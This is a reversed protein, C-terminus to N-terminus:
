KKVKKDKEILKELVQLPLGMDIVGFDGAVRLIGGEVIKLEDAIFVGGFEIKDKYDCRLKLDKLVKKPNLTAYFEFRYVTM